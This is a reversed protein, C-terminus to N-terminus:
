GDTRRMPSYRAFTATQKSKGKINEMWVTKHTFYRKLVWFWVKWPVCKPKVPNYYVTDYHKGDCFSEVQEKIKQSWYSAVIAQIM